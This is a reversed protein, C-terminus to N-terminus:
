SAEWKEPNIVVWLELTEITELPTKIVPLHRSEAMLKQSPESPGPSVTGNNIHYCKLEPASSLKTWIRPYGGGEGSLGARSEPSKMEKDTKLDISNGSGLLLQSGQLGTFSPHLLTNVIVIDPIIPSGLLYQPFM